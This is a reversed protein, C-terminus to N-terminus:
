HMDVHERAMRTSPRWITGGGGGFVELTELNPFAKPALIPTHPFLYPSPLETMEHPKIKNKIKDNNLKAVDLVTVFYPCVSGQNSFLSPLVV